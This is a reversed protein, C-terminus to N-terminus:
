PHLPLFQGSHYGAATPANNGPLYYANLISFREHFCTLEAAEFNL